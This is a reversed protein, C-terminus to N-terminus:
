APGGAVEVTAEHSLNGASSGTRLVLPGPEVVWGSREADWHRLARAHVPGPVDVVEGPEASVGTFGALRRVPRAVASGPREAYVQVVHRGRREGNNRLRVTAVFGDSGATGPM